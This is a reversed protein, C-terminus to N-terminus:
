AQVSGESRDEGSSAHALLEKEAEYWDIDASDIPCGREVWLQYARAAIEDRSPPPQVTVKTM